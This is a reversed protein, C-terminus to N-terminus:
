VDTREEVFERALLAAGAVAAPMVIVPVLPISFLLQCTAGFSWAARKDRMLLKAKDQAVIGKPVLTRGLLEEALFFPLLTWTVVLGLIGGVVPILSLVFAIIAVLLGKAVLMLADKIGSMWSAEPLKTGAEEEIVEAIKSYIPDGIALALATFLVYGLVAGGAVIAGQLTLHITRALWPWLDKTVPDLLSALSNSFIILFVLGVILLAGAIVAPLAGLLLYKPHAFLWKVGAFLSLPGRAFKLPQVNEDFARLISM